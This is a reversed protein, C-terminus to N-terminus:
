RKPVTWMKKNEIQELVVQDNRLDIVRYHTDKEGPMEFTEGQKVTISQDGKKSYLVAYSASSRTPMDKVLDIKQGPAAPDELTVKSADIPNGDKDQTQLAEVKQVKLQSGHLTQGVKVTEVKSEGGDQHEVKATEGDVSKLLYPVRIENFEKLRLTAHVGPRSDPDKPNTDALFEERNTYGDGDPDADLMKPDNLDLGYKKFWAEYAVDAAALEANTATPTTPPASKTNEGGPAAVPDPTGTSAAGGAPKKCGALLLSAACLTLLLRIPGNM